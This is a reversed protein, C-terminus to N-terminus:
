PSNSQTSEQVLYPELKALFDSPSGYSFVESNRHITPLNSYLQRLDPSYDPLIKPRWHTGYVRSKYDVSPEGNRIQKVMAYVIELTYYFFAVSDMNLAEPFYEFSDAVIEGSTDNIINDGNVVIGGRKTAEELAIMQFSSTLAKSKLRTYIQDLFFSYIENETKKIIVPNINLRRMLYGVYHLENNNITSDVVIPTIPISNRRFARLIFESDAGGSLSLYLKQGMYDKAIKQVTFDAAAQFMMSEFPYLNLWVEFDLTQSKCHEKINSQMWSNTTIM